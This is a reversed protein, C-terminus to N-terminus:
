LDSTELANHLAEKVTDCAWVMFADNSHHPPNVEHTETSLFYVIGRSVAPVRAAKLFVDKLVKGDRRAFNADNVSCSLNPVLSPDQTSFFLHTFLQRLFMKTKSKLIVFDLTKLVTIAISDKAIWWAYTRAINTMRTSSVRDLDFAQSGDHGEEFGKTMEAGGVNAEGLSRLFDWFCYQLTVRHSHSQRCLYQGILTYYPNYAKENGCCHLLVRVIERQQVETLNLQALRDCADVYDDSSMLVVFVSRRVDTNMGQKRALKLLSNETDASDSSVQLRPTQQDLLPDGGWAAGVLWWKGKSDAQHLDDLSIQLPEHAHVHYKKGIGAVFKTIREKSDGGGQAAATHKKLKNNKLNILTEVMFRTRSNAHSQDGLKSQIVQIIDKLASPDDQRLQSGSGRALKLILEVDLESLDGELILRIIDYILTCSIVHYNYLDSLLVLLNSCEKGPPEDNKSSDPVVNIGSLNAYYNEFTVVVSQVFYAALEVGIIKHLCAVLGAHLAVYSDLLISHSRTGEIILSTLTSTIDAFIKSLYWLLLSSTLFKGNRRHSRYLEEIENLMSDINQESLRNLLGKLVRALKVDVETSRSNSGKRLHPPVYKSALGGDAQSDMEDKEEYSDDSAFGAWENGDDVLSNESDSASSQSELNNCEEVSQDEDIDDPLREDLDVLLNLLRDEEFGPGYRGKGSKRKDVGLRRELMSIYADEDSNKKPLEPLAVTRDTRRLYKSESVKCEHIGKVTNNSYVTRAQHITEPSSAKSTPSEQVKRKKRVVNREDGPKVHISKKTTSRQAEIEDQLAQPLRITQPRRHVSM